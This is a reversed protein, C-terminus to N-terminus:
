FSYALGKARQALGGNFIGVLFYSLVDYLPVGKNGPLAFHHTFYLTERVWRHYLMQHLFAKVDVTAQKLWARITASANRFFGSVDGWANRFWDSVVNM